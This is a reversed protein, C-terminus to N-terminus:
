GERTKLCRRCEHLSKKSCGAAGGGACACACACACAVCACACARDSTASPEGQRGMIVAAWIAPTIYDGYGRDYYRGQADPELKEKEVYKEFGQEIEKKRDADEAMEKEIIYVQRQRRDRTSQQMKRIGWFVFFVVSLIIGVRQHPRRSKHQHLTTFNLQIRRLKKPLLFYIIVFCAITSTLLVFPLGWGIWSLFNLKEAGPIKNLYVFTILIINTASGIIFGVGGINSGYLNAMALATTLSRDKNDSADLDKKLIELIPLITLVAIINPIFM